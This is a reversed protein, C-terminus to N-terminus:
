ERLLLGCHDLDGGHADDVAEIRLDAGVSQRKRSSTGRELIGLHQNVHVGDVIDAHHNKGVGLYDIFTLHYAKHQIVGANDADIRGARGEFRKSFRKKTLILNLM